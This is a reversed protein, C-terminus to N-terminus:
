RDDRALQAARLVVRLALLDLPHQGLPLPLVWSAGLGNEGRQAVDLRRVQGVRCNEIECAQIGVMRLGRASDYQTTGSRKSAPLYGPPLVGFSASRRTAAKRSAPNSVKM